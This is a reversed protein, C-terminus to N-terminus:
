AESSDKKGKRQALILNYKEIRANLEDIFKKHDQDGNILVLADIRKMIDYFLEDIKARVEKMNTELKNADESYRNTMLDKFAQNKKELEMIWDNMGITAFDASHNTRSDLILSDIAATEENYPKRSVNGLKELMIIIRDAADRKEENYHLQTSQVGLWLGRFLQDRESDLIALKNSTASKRLEVMVKSETEQFTGFGEFLSEINLNGANYRNVLTSFDSAFQVHEENRLHALKLFTIRM